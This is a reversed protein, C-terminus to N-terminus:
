AADIFSRVGETEIASLAADLALQDTEFTDDWVSSNGNIDVIELFWGDEEGKYIDVRVSEGDRTVTQSLPSETIEFKETDFIDM